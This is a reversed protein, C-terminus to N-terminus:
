AGNRASVIGRCGTAARHRRLAVAALLLLVILGTRGSGGRGARGPEAPTSDPLPKENSDILVPVHRTVVSFGETAEAIEVLFAETPENVEDDLVQISVTRDTADGDAWDLRQSTTRFDADPQAVNWAGCGRDPASGCAVARVTVSAAGTSGGTRRVTVPVSAATEAVSGTPGLLVFAGPTPASGGRLRQMIGDATMVVLNGAADVYLFRAETALGQGVWQDSPRGSGTIAVVGDGGGWGTDPTGDAKFRAVGVQGGDTAFAVYVVLRAGDVVLKSWTAPAGFGAAEVLWEHVGGPQPIGGVFVGVGQGGITTGVLGIREDKAFPGYRWNGPLLSDGISAGDGYFVGLETGILVTGDPDVHLTASTRCSTAAYSGRYLTVGARADTGDPQLYFLAVQDTACDYPFPFVSWVLAAIRGDPLVDLAAIRDREGPADITAVGGQGFAPDLRGTADVRAIAATSDTTSGDKLKYGGLLVAGNAQRSTALALDVRGPLANTYTGDTGYGYDVVRGDLDILTVSLTSDGATAVGMRSRIVLYGNLLPVANTSDPPEVAPRAYVFTPDVDGPALQAHALWSLLLLVPAQLSVAVRPTSRHQLFRRGVLGALMLLLAPWGFSGGGNSGGGADQGGAPPPATPLSAADQVTVALLGQANWSGPTLAEFGVYIQEAGEEYRDTRLPIRIVKDGDDGDSWDLVGSVADFDVGPTAPSTRGELETETLTWFRLRVAGDSGAARFVRLEAADESELWTRPWYAATFGPSPENRGLLRYAHGNWGKVIARGDALGYVLGAAANSKLAVTGQRGFGVDLRGARDGDAFFRSLLWPDNGNSGWSVYLYRGDRSASLRYMYVPTDLEAALAVTGDGNPGFTSDFSGDARVKALRDDLSTAIASGDPLVAAIKWLTADAAPPCDAPAGTVTLCTAPASHVIMSGDILFSVEWGDSPDFPRTDVSLSGGSGFGADLRGDPLLRILKLQQCCWDETPHARGLQLLLRGDPQVQLLAVTNGASYSPDDIRAVGNSGFAPDPEGDHGLRLVAFGTGRIGPQDLLVLLRGDWDQAWSSGGYYNSWKPLMGEPWPQVGSSGFSGDPRGDADTRRYGEEVPYLLRGDALPPYTWGEFRGRGNTGYTPDVDGIGAEALSAVALLVATAV